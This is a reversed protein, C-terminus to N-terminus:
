FVCWVSYFRSAVGFASGVLSPSNDGVEGDNEAEAAAVTATRDDKDVENGDEDPNDGKITTRTTETATKEGSGGGPKARGEKRKM